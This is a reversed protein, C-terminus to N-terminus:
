TRLIMTYVVNIDFFKFDQFFINPGIRASVQHINLATIARQANQKVFFLCTGTFPDETGDTVWLRRGDSNYPKTKGAASSYLPTSMLHERVFIYARVCVCVCVCVCVVCVCVCM